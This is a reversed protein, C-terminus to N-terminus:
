RINQTYVNYKTKFSNDSEDSEDYEYGDDIYDDEEDIDEEVYSNIVRMGRGKQNMSHRPHKRHKNSNSDDDDLKHRQDKKTKAM